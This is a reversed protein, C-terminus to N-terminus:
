TSGIAQRHIPQIAQGASLGALRELDSPLQSLPCERSVSPTGALPRAGRQRPTLRSWQGTGSLWASACGPRDPLALSLM